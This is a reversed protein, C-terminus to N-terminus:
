SVAIASLHIKHLFLVCIWLFVCSSSLCPMFRGEQKFPVSIVCSSCALITFSACAPCFLISSKNGWWCFATSLPPWLFEFTLWVRHDSGGILKVCKNQNTATWTCRACQWVWQNMEEGHIEEILRAWFSAIPIAVHAFFVTQFLSFKWTLVM